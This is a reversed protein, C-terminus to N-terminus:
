LQQITNCRYLIRTKNAVIINNQLNGTLLEKINIIGIISILGILIPVIIENAKVLGKINTMFIIFTITALIGSGILSNIKLEQEMYAGFGAIMIFFTILIFTNIIVNIITKIKTNNKLLINLFDKYTNIKYKNVIQLTKNIAIGIIISSIIIGIIGKIGHSFFFIYIEQGSAFGAGILTGIIILIIKLSNKM